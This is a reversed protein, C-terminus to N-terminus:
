RLVAMEKSWSGAETGLRQRRTDVRCGDWTWGGVNLGRYRNGADKGQMWEETGMRQPGDNGTDTECERCGNALIRSGLDTWRFGDGQVWGKCESEGDM